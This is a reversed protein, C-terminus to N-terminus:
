RVGRTELELLALDLNGLMEDRDLFNWSLTGRRGEDDIPVHEAPSTDLRMMAQLRRTCDPSDVESEIGGASGAQEPLLGLTPLKPTGERSSDWHAGVPSNGNEFGTPQDGFVRDASLTERRFEDEIPVHQARSLDLRMTPRAGIGGRSGAQEPLLGLAPLKPTGETSSDWNAGAPGRNGNEFGTPQDGFVRDASLTERRFEDEIPMHQARALDLRMTPRAGIGGGSGAQEPLLGLTPLKPTGERSSDWHAGTTTTRSPELPSRASAAMSQRAAQRTTHMNPGGTPPSVGLEMARVHNAKLEPEQELAILYPDEAAKPHRKLDAIEQAQRLKENTYLRRFVTFRRIAAQLSDDAFIFYDAAFIQLLVVDTQARCVWRHKWEEMISRTCGEGRGGHDVQHVGRGARGSRGPAGRAGGEMIPQHVGQGARWSRGPAGRAGGEM